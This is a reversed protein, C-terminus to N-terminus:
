QSLLVFYLYLCSSVKEKLDELLQEIETVEDKEKEGSKKETAIPLTEHNAELLAKQSKEDANDEIVSKGKGNSMAAESRLRGLREECVSVAQQCYSLAEKPKYGLQHALSLKFCRCLFM